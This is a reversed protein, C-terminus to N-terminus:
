IYRRGTKMQNALEVARLGVQKAWKSALMENAAREYECDFIMNLTKTFGSLGGVGMNFAMNALVEQRIADLNEDKFFWGLKPHRELKELLQKVDNDLMFNAEEESIGVDDLNRGFGVTLKGVTDTYPKLRLGEHRKLQNILLNISIM